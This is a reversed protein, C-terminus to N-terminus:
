YKIFEWLLTRDDTICTNTALYHKYSTGPETTHKLCLQNNVANKFLGDGTLVWQQENRRKDCKVFQVETNSLLDLCNSGMKLRGKTDLTVLMDGEYMHPRCHVMQVNQLTDGGDNYKICYGTKSKLKGFYRADDPPIQLDSVTAKLYDRFSYCTVQKKLYMRRTRFSQSESEDMDASIANQKFALTRYNELWLDVIRRFNKHNDVKHPELANKVAVRSCSVIKISGGCMWTRMSLELAEGGGHTIGEDFNGISDLFEHDVAFAEGTMVPTKVYKGQQNTQTYLTTLTWSFINILNDAIQFFRYGSLLSDFHPVAIAHRDSRITDILPPLWNKNVAVESSLFVLINGTAVKSAKFRFCFTSFSLQLKLTSYVNSITNTLWMLLSGSQVPASGQVTLMEQELNIKSHAHPLSSNGRIGITWFLTLSIHM